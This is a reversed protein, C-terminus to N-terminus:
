HHAPGGSNKMDRIANEPNNNTAACRRTRNDEQRCLDGMEIKHAVWELESWPPPGDIHIRAHFQFPHPEGNTRAAFGHACELHM